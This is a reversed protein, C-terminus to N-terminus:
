SHFGYTNVKLFLVISFYLDQMQYRVYQIFALVAVCIGATREFNTLVDPLQLLYKHGNGCRGYKVREQTNYSRM